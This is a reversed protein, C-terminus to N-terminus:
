AVKEGKPCTIRRLVRNGSVRLTHTEKLILAWTECGYLVPTSIHYM